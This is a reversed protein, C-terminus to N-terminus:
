AAVACDVAAGEVVCGETVCDHGVLVNLGCGVEAHNIGCAEEDVRNRGLVSGINEMAISVMAIAAEERTPAATGGTGMDDVPFMSFAHKLPLLKNRVRPM